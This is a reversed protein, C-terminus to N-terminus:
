NIETILTFKEDGEKKLNHFKFLQEKKHLFEYKYEKGVIVDFLGQLQEIKLKEESDKGFSWIKNVLPETFEKDLSFENIFSKEIDFAFTRSKKIWPRDIELKSAIIINNANVRIFIDVYEKFGGTKYHITTTGDENLIKSKESTNFFSAFRGDIFDDLKMRKMQLPSVEEQANLSISFSLLTIIFFSLILRM